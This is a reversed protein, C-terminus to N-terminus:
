QMENQITEWHKIQAQEKISPPLKNLVQNAEEQTAYSGHLGLYTGSQSRVEASHQSKSLQQLTNAVPAPKPNQTVQITYDHPNQRSIWRKDEDKSAPPSNTMGLHYSQPVAVQDFHPTENSNVHYNDFSTDSDEPFLQPYPYSNSNNDPADLFYSNESTHTTSSTGDFFCGSLCLSCVCIILCQLVRYAVRHKTKEPEPPIQDYNEFSQM